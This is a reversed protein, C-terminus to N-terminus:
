WPTAGPVATGSRRDGSERVDVAVGGGDDTRERREGLRVRVVQAFRVGAAEGGRTAPVQDAVVALERGRWGGGVIQDGKGLGYALRGPGYRRGRTRVVLFAKGTLLGTTAPM